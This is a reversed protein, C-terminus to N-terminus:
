EAKVLGHRMNIQVFFDRYQPASRLSCAIVSSKDEIQWVKLTCQVPLETRESVLEYVDEGNREETSSDVVVLITRMIYLTQWPEAAVYFLQVAM